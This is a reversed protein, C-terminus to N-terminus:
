KKFKNKGKSQAIKIKGQRGKDKAGSVGEKGKLKVNKAKSQPSKVKKLNEKKGKVNVPSEVMVEAGSEEGESEEESGVNYRPGAVLSEESDDGEESEEEEEISEDNILGSIDGEDSDGEEESDEVESGGEEEGSIDDEEELAEEDLLGSEDLESEEGESAENDLLGSENEEDEVEDEEGMIEEEDEGESMAEGESGEEREGESAEEDREQVLEVENGEEAVSQTEEGEAEDDAEVESVDGASGGIGEDESESGDEEQVDKLSLVKLPTVKDFTIALVCNKAGAVVFWRGRKHSRALGAVLRTGDLSWELANIFGEPVAIRSVAKMSNVTATKTVRWLRIFGDCSGSAVLDANVLAAAASIWNPEHRNARQFGHAARLTRLPRKRLTSWLALSGDQGYTVFTTNNLLRVGDISGQAGEFVFQKDEAVQLVLVTNDHGGCSIVSEEYLSDVGEVPSGHGGLNEMLTWHEASWELVNGDKSCSFLVKGERQFVLGTVGGTHSSLTSVPTLTATSWIRIEGTDDGSALFKGNSSIAIANIAKKHGNPNKQHFSKIVGLREFNSGYKVISGDLSASFISNDKQNIAVSTIVKRQQKCKLVKLTFNNELKEYNQALTRFLKGKSLLVGDKLTKKLQKDIQAEAANTRQIEKILQKSLREKKEEATEEDEEDVEDEEDYKARKLAQLGGEEDSSSSIEEDELASQVATKKVDKKTKVRENVKKQGRKRKVPKKFFPM